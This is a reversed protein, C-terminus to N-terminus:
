PFCLGAGDHPVPPPETRRLAETAALGDRGFLAALADEYILHWGPKLKMLNFTPSASKVLALHTDHKTLLADWDGRGHMFNLNDVYAGNPYATERRGDVSIKVSPGLHYIAYEGWDFHVALNGRVASHKILAIARAPYSGGIAPELRICTFHPISLTLLPVASALLLGASAAQIPRRRAPRNDSRGAWLREWADSVHEGALVAIGLASLPTHRIAILPLVIVAALTVLLAPERERRTYLIGWLAVAVCAAYALGYRTMLTLPQWETIDPRPVTATRYLFTWLDLGYPTLSVALVSAIVTTLIARVSARRRAWRTSGSWWRSGLETFSWIALVGIGALFGPHLNAWLVFLAPLTWARSLDGRSLRHITILVVLFLPYSFFLTRATILSVLFFHLVALVILSARLVPLGQRCLQRYLLGFLLLSIVTKLAILGSPGLASFALYFIVESLWEHNLWLHGATLYSFPDPQSVTGTQWVV